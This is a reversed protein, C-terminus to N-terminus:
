WRSGGWWGVGDSPQNNRKQARLRGLDVDALGRSVGAEQDEEAAERKTGSRHWLQMWQVLPQRGVM